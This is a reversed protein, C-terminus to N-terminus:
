KGTIKNIVEKELNPISIEKGSFETPMTINADNWLWAGFDRVTKGIGSFISGNNQENNQENTQEPQASMAATRELEDIVNSFQLVQDRPLLSAADVFTLKNSLVQKALGQMTNDDISAQQQRGGGGGGGGGGRRAMQMDFQRQQEAFDRADKEFQVRLGLAGLQANLMDAVGQAITDRRSIEEQQKSQWYQIKSQQTAMDRRMAQLAESLPMGAYDELSLAQLKEKAKAERKEFPATQGVAELGQKLLKAMVGQQGTLEVLQEQASKNQTSQVSVSPITSTSEPTTSQNAQQGAQAATKSGGFTRDFINMGYKNANEVDQDTAMRNVGLEKLKQEVQAKDITAM